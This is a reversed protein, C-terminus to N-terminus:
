QQKLSRLIQLSTTADSSNFWAQADAQSVFTDTARARFAINVSSRLDTFRLANPFKTQQGVNLPYTSLLTADIVGYDPENAPSYIGGIIKLNQNPIVLDGVHTPQFALLGSDHTYPAIYDVELNNALNLVTVQDSNASLAWNAPYKFCYKYTMDCYSKWGAYPDPTQPGSSQKNLSTQGSHTPKKSTHNKHWALWGGLGIIVIVIIAVISEVASFRKSSSKKIM